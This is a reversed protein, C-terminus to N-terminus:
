IAFGVGGQHVAGGGSQVSPPCVSATLCEQGAGLGGQANNTQCITSKESQGQSNERAQGSEIKRLTELVSISGSIVFTRNKAENQYAAHAEEECACCNSQCIQSYQTDPIQTLLSQQLALAEQSFGTNTGAGLGPLQTFNVMKIEIQMVQAQYIKLNCPCEPLEIDPIQGLNSLDCNWDGGVDGGLSGGGANQALNKANMQGLKKQINTAAFTGAILAMLIVAKSTM